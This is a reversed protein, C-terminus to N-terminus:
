EDTVAVAEYHNFVAIEGTEVCHRAVPVASDANRLYGGGGRLFDGVRAESGDPLVVTFPDLNAITGVPWVVPYRRGELALWICGAELDVELAGIVEAALGSVPQSVVPRTALPFDGMRSGLLVLADFEEDGIVVVGEPQTIEGEDILQRLRALDAGFFEVRNEFVNGQSEFPLGHARLSAGFAEQKAMLEAATFRAQQVVIPADALPTESVYPQLIKEGQDTPVTFVVTIGDSRPRNLWLASFTEPENIELLHGLHGADRAKEGVFVREEDLSTGNPSSTAPGATQTPVREVDLEVEKDATGDVPETPAPEADADCATLAIALGLSM